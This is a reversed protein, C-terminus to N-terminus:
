TYPFRYFRRRSMPLIRHHDAIKRPDKLVKVLICLLIVVTRVQVYIKSDILAQVKVQDKKFRVPYRICM